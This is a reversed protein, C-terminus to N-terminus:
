KDESEECIPCDTSDQCKTCWYPNPPHERDFGQDAPGGCKPCKSIDPEHPESRQLEALREEVVSIAVRLEKIKVEKIGLNCRLNDLVSQAAEKDEVKM